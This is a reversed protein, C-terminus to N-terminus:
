AFFVVEILIAVELPHQSAELLSHKKSVRFITGMWKKTFIMLSDRSYIQSLVVTKELKSGFLKRNALAAIYM